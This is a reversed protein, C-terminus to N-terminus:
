RGAFLDLLGGALLVGGAAANVHFFAQNVRRLDDPKVLLHELGLLGAVAAATGYWFPGRGAAWGAGLLAGVSALHSLRAVNMAGRLGLAAPVSHLGKRRDFELDECAYLIDAGAIWLTVSVGLLYPFPRGAAEPAVALWAGVPALGLSIGLIWHSLATFRKTFSYGLIVALAPPSLKLCLNNLRWASIVFLATMALTFGTAFGVTIRGAPIARGQTRPNEADLDADAIRNFAMAASRASVMAVLIWLLKGASPIGGAAHFAAVLAWPLAFVSHQVKIMELVTLVKRIM